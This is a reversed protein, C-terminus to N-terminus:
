YRIGFTLGLSFFSPTLTDLAQNVSSTTVMGMKGLSAIPTGDTSTLISPSGPCGSSPGSKSAPLGAQSLSSPPRRPGKWGLGNQWEIIWETTRHNIKIPCSFPLFIFLYLLIEYSSCNACMQRGLCGVLLVDLCSWSLLSWRLLALSLQEWASLTAPLPALMVALFPSLRLPKM